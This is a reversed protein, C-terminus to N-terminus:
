YCFLSLNYQNTFKMHDFITKNINTMQIPLDNDILEDLTINNINPSYLYPAIAVADVYKYTEGCALIRKTTDANM